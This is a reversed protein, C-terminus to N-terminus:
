KTDLYNSVAKEALAIAAKLDDNIISFDFKSEYKMEEVAKSIRKQFTAEDETKRNRLRAELESISPPRVFIALAKDKFYNKLKMGGKVDVDFIVHKHLSWIREVESRLTGYFMDEYVEEWEVFENNNIKQKFEGSSIFYYDVGNTEEPRKPRTCASTSFGLDSRSNLLHRAITTKGSGSPASFIIAKGEFLNNSLSM